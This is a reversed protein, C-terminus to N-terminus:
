GARMAIAHRVTQMLHLTSPVTADAGLRTIGPQTTSRGSVIIALRPNRSALRVRTILQAMEPLREDRAIAASLSLDLCDFHQAELRTLLADETGPGAISPTWGSQWLAEPHFTTGLAHPEDPQAACLVAPAAAVPPAPSSLLGAQRVATRLCCLGLTVDLEGITDEGWMDGLLRAAPEALTALLPILQSTSGLAGIVLAAAGRSDGMALLKALEAVLPHRTPSWPAPHRAALEPVVRNLIIDRLIRSIEDSPQRPPTNRRRPVVRALVDAADDPAARLAQILSANPRIVHGGKGDAPRGAVQMEWGSFQRSRIIGRSLVHIDTHRPDLNISSLIRDIGATPGELWQYFTGRDYIILGTIAEARNRSQAGRMMAHLDNALFPSTEHSRYVVRTLVPGVTKASVDLAHPRTAGARVASM